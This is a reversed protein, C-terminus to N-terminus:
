AWAYNFWATGGYVEGEKGYSRRARSIQLEVLPIFDKSHFDHWKTRGANVRLTFRSFVIQVAMKQMADLKRMIRSLAHEPVSALSRTVKKSRRREITNRRKRRDNSTEEEKSKDQFLIIWRKTTVKGNYWSNSSMFSWKSCNSLTFILQNWISVFWVLESKKWESDGPTESVGVLHRLENNVIENDWEVVQISKM